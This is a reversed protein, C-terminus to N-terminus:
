IVQELDDHWQEMAAALDSILRTREFSETVMTVNSYLGAFIRGQLEALNIGKIFSEDWARLAPDSSVVPHRTDIEVNQMNSVRGLVLSMNKDFAYVTWFM